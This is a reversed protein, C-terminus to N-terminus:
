IADNPYTFTFLYKHANNSKDFYVFFLTNLITVLTCFCVAHAGYFLFRASFSSGCTASFFCWSSDFSRRGLGGAQVFSWAVNCQFLPSGHWWIDTGFRSQVCGASWLHAGFMLHYEWLWGESLGAYGGPFVSGGGAFFFVFSFLLCPVSFSCAAYPNPLQLHVLSLPLHLSSIEVRVRLLCLRSLCFLQCPAPSLSSVSIPYTTTWLAWRRLWHSVDLTLIISCFQFVILLVNCASLLSSASPNRVKGWLFPALCLFLGGIFWCLSLGVGFCSPQHAVSSNEPGQPCYV